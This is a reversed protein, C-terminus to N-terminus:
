DTEEARNGHAPKEGPTSAEGTGEGAEKKKRLAVPAVKKGRSKERM